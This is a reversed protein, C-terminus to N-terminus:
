ERKKDIQLKVTKSEKEALTVSVGAPSELEDEDVVNEVDVALVRYSGPAVNKV